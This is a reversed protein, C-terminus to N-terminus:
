GAMAVTWDVRPLGAGRAAGKARGGGIGLIGAWERMIVDGPPTMSSASRALPTFSITM